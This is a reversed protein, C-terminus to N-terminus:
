RIDEGIVKKVFLNFFMLKAEGYNGNTCQGWLVCCPEFRGFRAFGARSSQINRELFIRNVKLWM